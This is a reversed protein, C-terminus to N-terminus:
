QRDVSVLDEVMKQLHVKAAEAKERRGIIAIVGQDEEGSKQPFIVRVGFQERM